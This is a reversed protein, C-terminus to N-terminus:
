CNFVKSKSVFSMLKRFLVVKKSNIKPKKSTASLIAPPMVFILM